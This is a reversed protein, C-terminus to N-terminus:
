RRNGQTELAPAEGGSGFDEWEISPIDPDPARLPPALAEADPAVVPAERGELRAEAGAFAVDGDAPLGLSAPVQVGGITLVIGLGREEILARRLRGDDDAIQCGMREFALPAPGNASPAPRRPPILLRDCRGELRQGSPLDIVYAAGAALVAANGAFRRALAELRDAPVPMDIGIAPGRLPQGDASRAATWLKIAVDGVLASAACAGGPTVRGDLIASTAACEVQWGEARAATAPLLAALLVAASALPRTM